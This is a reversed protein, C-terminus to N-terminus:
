VRFRDQVSSCVGHLRELSEIRDNSMHGLGQFGLGM